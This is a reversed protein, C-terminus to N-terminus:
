HESNQWVVHGVQLVVLVREEAFYEPNKGDLAFADFFYM